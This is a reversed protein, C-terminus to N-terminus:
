ELKVTWSGMSVFGTNISRNRAYLYLGKSGAYAAKFRINVTVTLTNGSGSASSGTGSLICQDNQLMDASGPSIPGLWATGPDDIVFFKNLALDYMARCGKVLSQNPDQGMIVIQMRNLDAYGSSDSVTGTFIQQAGSGSNPTLSVATLRQRAGCGNSFYAILGTLLISFLKRDLM